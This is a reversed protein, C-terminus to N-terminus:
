CRERAPGALTRSSAAPSASPGVSHPMSARMRPASPPPAAGGTRSLRAHLPFPAAARHGRLVSPARGRRRLRVDPRLGTQARTGGSRLLRGAPQQHAPRERRRTSGQRRVVGARRGASVANATPRLLAPGHRPDSDRARVRGEERQGARSLGRAASKVFSVRLASSNAATPGRLLTEYLRVLEEDEIPKPLWPLHSHAHFFLQDLVPQALPQM